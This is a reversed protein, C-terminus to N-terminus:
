RMVSDNAADMKDLGVKVALQERRIDLVDLERMTELATRDPGRLSQKGTVSFGEKGREKLYSELARRYDDVLNVVDQSVRARLLFLQQVREHLVGAQRSFDWEMIITQLSMETRLPLDKAEARVEVTPHIIEELKRRSVESPWTQSLDRGTFEVLKLAWWKEVELQSAFHSHFAERLSIQWNLHQALERVMARLCERGDRFQLLEHVFLQASSRYIEGSKGELQGAKPWSLEELTLPPSEHLEDHAITLPNARRWDVNLPNKMKFMNASFASQESEKM